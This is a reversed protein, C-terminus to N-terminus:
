GARRREAYLENLEALAADLAIREERIHAMAKVSTEPDAERSILYNRRKELARLHDLKLRPVAEPNSPITM